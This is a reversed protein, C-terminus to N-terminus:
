RGGDEREHPGARSTLPPTLPAPQHSQSGQERRSGAEPEQPRADRRAEDSTLAGWAPGAARGDEWAVPAEGGSGGAGGGRGRPARAGGAAPSGGAVAPSPAGAASPYLGLLEAAAAAGAGGFPAIALRVDDQQRRLAMLELYLPLVAVPM